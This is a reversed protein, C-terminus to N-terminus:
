NGRMVYHIIKALSWDLIFLLIGVIIVAVVVIITTQTTEQRTPWVVRRMEIISENFFNLLNRGPNSVFMLGAGAVLTGVFTLTRVWNAWNNQFHYYAFIGGGIVLLGALLIAYDTGTLGKSDPAANEVKANM